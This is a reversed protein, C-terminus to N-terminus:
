KDDQTKARVLSFVVSVQCLASILWFLVCVILREYTESSIFLKESSIFSCRLSIIFLHFSIGIKDKLQADECMAKSVNDCYM